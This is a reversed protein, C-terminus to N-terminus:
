LVMWPALLCLLSLAIRDLGKLACRHVVKIRPSGKVRGNIGVQGVFTIISPIITDSVLMALACHRENNEVWAVMMM